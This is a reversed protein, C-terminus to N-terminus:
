NQQEQLDAIYSFHKGKKGEISLFKCFKVIDKLLFPVEDTTMKHGNKKLGEAQERTDAIMQKATKYVEKQNYGVSVLISVLAFFPSFSKPNQPNHSGSGLSWFYNIDNVNCFNLERTTEGNEIDEQTAPYCINGESDIVYKM